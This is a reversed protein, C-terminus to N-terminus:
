SASALLSDVLTCEFWINKPSANNRESYLLENISCIRIKRGLGARHTKKKAIWLKCLELVTSDAVLAGESDLNAELDQHVTTAGASLTTTGAVLYHILCEGAVGNGSSSSSLSPGMMDMSSPILVIGNVERHLTVSHQALWFAFVPSPLSLLGISREFTRQANSRGIRWCVRFCLRHTIASLSVNHNRSASKELWDDSWM